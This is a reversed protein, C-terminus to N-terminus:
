AVRSEGMEAAGAAQVAFLLLDDTAAAPRRFRRLEEVCRDMLRRLVPEGGGALVDALRGTGFDEGAANEAEVVGDTFFLLTEGPETTMRVPEYRTGAFLGFPLGPELSLPVTTGDRRWLPPWHGANYLDVSRDPKLVAAALTAYADVPAAQHFLDNVRALLDAPSMDLTALSRFAGVLNAMLLSAAVGKGSVDGVLVLTEDRRALRLVDCFDGGVESAPEYHYRLRWGDIAQCCPPLLGRQITRALALDRTMRTREVESPHERCCRALPDEVLRDLEIDDQSVTCTHFTGDGLRALAADVDRILARLASDPALGGAHDLHRRRARLEAQFYGNDFRTM